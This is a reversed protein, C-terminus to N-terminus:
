HLVEQGVPRKRQSALEKLTDEFVGWKTGEGLLQWMSGESFKTGSERDRFPRVWIRLKLRISQGVYVREDESAMEVFLLDKTDNKAVVFEFPGTKLIGEQTKVEIEPIVYNGEARPTVQYAYMVILKQSRRGNIISYQNSRQPPGTPVIDLGEVEPVAPTSHGQANVVLVQLLVTEGVSAERTTLQGTVRQAQASVCGVLLLVLTWTRISSGAM